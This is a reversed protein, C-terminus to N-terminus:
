SRVVRLAGSGLLIANYIDRENPTPLAKTGSYDLELGRDPPTRHASTYAYKRYLMIQPLSKSRYQLMGRCTNVGPLTTELMITEATQGM